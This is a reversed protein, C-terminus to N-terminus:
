QKPGLSTSLMEVFTDIFEAKCFSFPFRATVEDPKTAFLLCGVMSAWLQCALTPAETKSVISGDERGRNIAQVLYGIIQEVLERHAVVGPTDLDEPNEGSAIWTIALRFLHVNDAAHAAYSRLMECLLARGQNDTAVLEIFSTCVQQLLTSSMVAFLEYKSSFYLYLTGKSLEAEAAIQGMTTVEYGKRLFVTRAADVIAQRREERERERRSSVGM